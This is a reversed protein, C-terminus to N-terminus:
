RLSSAQRLRSRARRVAVNSAVVGAVGLDFGGSAVGSVAFVAVFSPAVNSAYVYGVPYTASVTPTVSATGDSATPTLTVRSPAIVSTFQLPFLAVLIPAHAGKTDCVLSPVATTALFDL